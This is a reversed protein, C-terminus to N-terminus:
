TLNLKWTMNVSWDEISSMPKQNLAEHCQKLQESYHELAAAKANGYQLLLLLIIILLVLYIILAARLPIFRKEKGKKKTEESEM